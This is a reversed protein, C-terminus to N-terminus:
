FLSLARDRTEGENSISHAVSSSEKRETFILSLSGKMDVVMFCRILQAM